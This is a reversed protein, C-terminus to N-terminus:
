FTFTEFNGKLLDATFLSSEKDGAGVLTKIINSAQLSAALAAVPGAIGALSCPMFDSDLAPAPFIDSYAVSGPVYQFVQARWETVGAISLPIARRKCYSDLLYTTSPNDAADAILDFKGNNEELFDKTILSPICEVKVQSNLEIMSNALLDCKLKGADGERYFVQRHLNSIDVTDFDAITISGVGAGALYMAIPSGLAGCGVILVRADLLRAQGEKGIEPLRIQPIYRTDM